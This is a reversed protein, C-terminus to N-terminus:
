IEGATHVLYGSMMNLHQHLTEQIDWLCVYKATQFLRRSIQAYRRIKRMCILNAAAPQLILSTLSFDTNRGSSNDAKVIAARAELNATLVRLHPLRKESQPDRVHEPDLTM